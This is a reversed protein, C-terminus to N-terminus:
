SKIHDSIMEFTRDYRYQINMHGADFEEHFYRIGKSKLKSCFIRAGAHLNFEDRIGADLFILSLKKLNSAYKGVLRVPDHQLWRKFTKEILEGTYLDFPLDFNYGKTKADRPNPSYCSAMAITNLIEFFLKSKPQNFNIEKKIFDSVAKHGKGFKAIGTIFKPIDPLYCYEFSMDGATSCMLGFIGPNKMALIVSGYGGSSKGCVARSGPGPITRYKSDIFPVLEKIIYDEYNGTASSNIFQSGGFKTMCDPMVVIMEKVKKGSMLRDLRQPLNESLFNINLGMMGTGTFGMLLFVVPYRKNSKSYSAPLYVPFTREAPDGLPNNRLIRSKFKEVVIM